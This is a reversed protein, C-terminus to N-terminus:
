GLRMGLSWEGSYQVHTYSQVFSFFSLFPAQSHTWSISVKLPIGIPDSHFPLSSSYHDVGGEAGGEESQSSLESERRERGGVAPDEGAGGPPLREDSKDKLLSEEVIANMYSPASNPQDARPRIVRSDHSKQTQELHSPNEQGDFSPQKSSVDTLDDDKSEGDTATSESTSQLSSCGAM